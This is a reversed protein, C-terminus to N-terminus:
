FLVTRHSVKQKTEKYKCNSRNKTKVSTLKRSFAPSLNKGRRGGYDFASGSTRVYNKCARLQDHGGVSALGNLNREIQLVSPLGLGYAREAVKCVVKACLGFLVLERILM